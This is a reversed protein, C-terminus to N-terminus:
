PGKVHKSILPRKQLFVEQNKENESESYDTPENGESNSEASRRRDRLAEKALAGRPNVRMQPKQSESEGSEPEEYEPEESEPEEQIFSQKDGKAEKMRQKQRKLKEKADSADLTDIEPMNANEPGGSETEKQNLSESEPEHSRINLQVFSGDGTEEQTLSENEGKAEKM